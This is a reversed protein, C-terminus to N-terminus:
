DVEATHSNFAHPLPTLAGAPGAGASRALAEAALPPANLAADQAFVLAQEAALHVGVTEGRTFRRRDFVGTLELGNGLELVYDYGRGHYASDRVVARLTAARAEPDCLRVATPRLMVQVAAGPRLEAMPTASIDAQRTSDTTPVAVRVREPRVREPGLLRGTLVGSLGTFRAVFPSAPTRYITEPAGLQVLRGSELIGVEDGLAFAEAQDHTIYVATAGQERVLTGIEIRLRERLNADLSSLPEDFLLLAPNAVLARALAVRQQEGGSLEHPYREAHRTLGVRQLMARVRDAAAGSAVKRRRLPFQVNEGVTMHPWLAFDQFVMALDRREPSLHRHGGAVVDGALRIEGATPREIGALCRILTSKGSGSPGLLVLFRSRGVALSVDQLARVDSYHKTLGSLQVSAAGDPEGSGLVRPTSM